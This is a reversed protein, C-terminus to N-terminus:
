AHHQAHKYLKLYVDLLPGMLDSDDTFYCVSSHGCKVCSDELDPESMKAFSSWDHFTAGEALERCYLGRETIAFGNKGSKMFTDDHILFVDEGDAVGLGRLIKPSSRFSGSDGYEAAFEECVEAAYDVMSLSSSEEEEYGDYVDEILADAEDGDLAFRSGCYECTVMRSTIKQDIIGGCAPCKMEIFQM